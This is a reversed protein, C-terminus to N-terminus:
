AASPCSPALVCQDCRPSRASCVARGHSILLYNVRGWDKEPILAMLDKEIRDPNSEESLGLRGALRKVHTDVAIGAVVGFGDNLVINATKRAVGPLTLLEEMTRPVEGGFEEVIKRAAARINKAKNRYFGSSRIDAELEEPEAEAYDQAAPYKKFLAPTIKNIQRDTSQASLITAVLLQLPNSYELATGRGPYEKKLRRIIERAREQRTNEEM